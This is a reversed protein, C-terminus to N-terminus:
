TRLFVLILVIFTLIIVIWMGISIWNKKFNM